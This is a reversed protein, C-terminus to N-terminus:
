NSPINRILRRFQEGSFQNILSQGCSNFNVIYALSSTPATSSWYNGSPAGPFFLGLGGNMKALNCINMMESNSPRRWNSLGAYNSGDSDNFGKTNASGTCSRSNSNYNQGEACQKWMHNNQTDTIIGYQYDFSFRGPVATKLVVTPPVGLTTVVPAYM